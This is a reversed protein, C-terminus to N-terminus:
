PCMTVTALERPKNLVAPTSTPIMCLVVHVDWREWRGFGTSKEVATLTGALVSLGPLNPGRERTTGGGTLNLFVSSCQSDRISQEIQLLPPTPGRNPM